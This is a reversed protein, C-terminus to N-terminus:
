QLAGAVTSGILAHGAANPHIGDTIDYTTHLGYDGTKLPTFTDIVKEPGGYTSGIWSNFTRMDVADRPTALCHIVTIGAAVLQDHISAYNAKMTADAIGFHVDNGGIMMIALCPRLALIEPMYTLADATINGSHAASVSSWGLRDTVVAQWRQAFGTGAYYGETISDGIFVVTSNKKTNGTASWYTVNQTGGLAGIAFNGGNPPGKVYPYNFDYTFNASVSASTTVNTLTASMTLGARTWTVSMSDGATFGVASSTARTTYTVGDISHLFLTGNDATTLSVGISAGAGSGYADELLEFLIGYSTSSKDTAVFNATLTWNELAVNYASWKAWDDVEGGGVVVLKNSVISLSAPSDNQVEYNAGPAGDSRNFDDSFLLGLEAAPGNCLGGGLVAVGGSAVAAVPFLLIAVLLHWM